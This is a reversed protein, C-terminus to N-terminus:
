LQLVRMRMDLKQLCVRIQREKEDGVEGEGEGDSGHTLEQQVDRAGSACLRSLFEDLTQM